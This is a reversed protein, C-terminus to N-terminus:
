AVGGCLAQRLEWLAQQHPSRIERRAKERLAEIVEPYDECRIAIIKYGGDSSEVMCGYSIGAEAGTAEAVIGKKRLRRQVEIARRCPKCISSLGALGKSDKHFYEETMPYETKCHSCERVAAMGADMKIRAM